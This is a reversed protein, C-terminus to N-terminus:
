MIKEIYYASNSFNNFNFQLSFYFDNETREKKCFSPLYSKDSEIYHRIAVKLENYFKKKFEEMTLEQFENRYHRNRLIIKM